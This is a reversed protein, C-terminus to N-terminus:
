NMFLSHVLCSIAGSGIDPLHTSRMGFINKTAFSSPKSGLHPALRSCLRHNHSSRAVFYPPSLGEHLGFSIKSIREVMFVTVSWTWALQMLPVEFFRAGADDACPASGVPLRERETM